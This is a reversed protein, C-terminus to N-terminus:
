LILFESEGRRSIYAYIEERTFEAEKIRYGHVEAYKCCWQFDDTWSIGGDEEYLYARWLTVPYHLADLYAADEPTMFWSKARRNAYFYPRFEVANSATGSVIWVNRLLEWYVPDSLLHCKSFFIDMVKEKDQEVDYAHIVQRIIKTDREQQKRTLFTPKRRTFPHAENYTLVPKNPTPVEVIKM